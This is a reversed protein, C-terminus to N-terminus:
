NTTEVWNFSWTPDDGWTPILIFLLQFWWRAVRRTTVTGKAGKAHSLRRRKTMLILPGVCRSAFTRPKCNRRVATRPSNGAKPSETSFGACGRFNGNTRCSKPILFHKVMKVGWWFQFRFFPNCMNLSSEKKSFGENTITQTTLNKLLLYLNINFLLSDWTNEGVRFVRFHSAVIDIHWAMIINPTSMVSMVEFGWM